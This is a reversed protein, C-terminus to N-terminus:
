PMGIADVSQARGSYAVGSRFAIDGAPLYRQDAYDWRRRGTAADFVYVQGARGGCCVADGEAAPGVEVVRGDAASGEWRTAGTAADLARLTPEQVGVTVVVLGGIVAPRKGESAGGGFAANWRPAGTAADVAALATDSGAPVWRYVTEAGVALRAGFAPDNEIPRRWVPAGTAADVAELSAASVIVRGGGVALVPDSAGSGVPHTWRKAGSAADLTVLADRHVYHVLGDGAAVRAAM